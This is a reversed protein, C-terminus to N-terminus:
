DAGNAPHYKYKCYDWHAANRANCPDRPDADGSDPVSPETLGNAVTADNTAINNEDAAAAATRYVGQIM